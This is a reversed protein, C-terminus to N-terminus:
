LRDTAGQCISVIPRHSLPVVAFAFLAPGAYVAINAGFVLSTISQHWRIIPSDTVLVPLHYMLVILLTIDRVLLDHLNQIPLLRLDSEVAVFIVRSAIEL